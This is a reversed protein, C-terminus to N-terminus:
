FILSADLHFDIEVWLFTFRHGRKFSTIGHSTVFQLIFEQIFELLEFVCITIVATTGLITTQMALTHQTHLNVASM